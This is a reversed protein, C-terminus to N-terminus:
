LQAQIVTIVIGAVFPIFFNDDLNLLELEVAEAIMGFAAGFFAIPWPIFFSAAITGFFVGGLTGELLKKQNIILKTKGYYRGIFHAAPDGFALILISASTIDKNFLLSCVLVGILYYIAGKGPFKEFDKPKDFLRLFFIIIMPRKYKCLLSLTIAFILFCLVFLSFYKEIFPINLNLLIVFCVGFLMHTIKRRIEYTSLFDKQLAM